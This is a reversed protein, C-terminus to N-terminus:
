YSPIINTQLITLMDIGGHCLAAMVWAVEVDPPVEEIRIRSIRGLYISLLVVEEIKLTKDSNKRIEDISSFRVQVTAYKVRQQLLNSAGAGSGLM